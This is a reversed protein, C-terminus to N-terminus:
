TVTLLSAQRIPRVGSLLEAVTVDDGVNLFMRSSGPTRGIRWADRSVIVQSTLSLHGGKIAQLALYFTMLKDLSAPPRQRHLDASALIRGTSVEMLLTSAPGM